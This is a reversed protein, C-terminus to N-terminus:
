YNLSDNMIIIRAQKLMNCVVTNARVLGLDAERFPVRVGAAARLPLDVARRHRRHCPPVGPAAEAVVAEPVLLGLVLRHYRRRIEALVNREDHNTALLNPHKKTTVQKQKPLNRARRKTTRNLSARAAKSQHSESQKRKRAQAELDVAKSKENEAMERKTAKPAKAEPAVKVAPLESKPKEEEKRRKTLNQAKAELVVKAPIASRTKARRKIAKPAEVELVVKVPMENKTKTEQRRKTLNQAEAELVVKVPMGNKTRLEQRIKTPNQAEAGPVVKVPM